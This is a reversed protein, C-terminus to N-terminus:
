SSRGTQAPTVVLSVDDDHITVTVAGGTAFASGVMMRALPLKITRDILNALPRAGYIADYGRFALWNRAAATFRLEVPQARNRALVALQSLNKDVIRLMHEPKLPQYPLVADLRNIFEPLFARKIATDDHHPTVPSVGFGVPERAYDASGANSTLIIHVKRFDAVKGTGGTLRGDSFVQLFLSQIDQHAKEFEDLLLVCNPTNNIENILLGSGAAGDGYGAFTPASGILRTVSSKEMYESMDFRVLPVHLNRALARATETKGVGTPGTFLFVSAPRHDDRLGARAVLVGDCLARIATDQGVVEAMMRTDLDAITNRSHRVDEIGIRALLAVETEIDAVDIVARAGASVRQRAGAKDLVDIAKDPLTLFPVHRHTLDVAADLAGSTFRVQHFAEYVAAVGRLITKSEEIGPAAVDVRTFRRVLADDKELHKRYEAPTTAGVCRLQGRALAPKLLNSADMSGNGVSGAGVLRHMEDIFVIANEVMSFATLLTKFREEFDGRFRTGATMATVDLAYLVSARFMEPVDGAVIRRAMGEAIATKGVGPEGVLLVNNKRRQALIHTVSDLVDDRGVLPDIGGKRALATLDVCFRDLYARADEVTKLDRVPEVGETADGETVLESRGQELWRKVSAATFGAKLAATVAASDLHPQQLLHILLDIPQVKRPSFRQLGVARQVVLSFKPHERLDNETTTPIGGAAIFGQVVKRIADLDVSLAKACAAVDTQEVLVLLLHELTVAEHAQARAMDKARAITVIVEHAHTNQPMM